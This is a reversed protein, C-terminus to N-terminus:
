FSLYSKTPTGADCSTLCLCMWYSEGASAGLWDCLGSGVCCAVGLVFSRASLPNQVRSVLFSVDVSRCVSRAALLKSTAMYMKDNCKYDCV